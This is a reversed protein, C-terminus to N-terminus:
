RFRFLNIFGIKQRWSDAVAFWYVIILIYPFRLWNGYFSQLELGIRQLTISSKVSMWVHSKMTSIMLKLHLQRFIKSIFKWKFNARWKKMSKEFCLGIRPSVLPDMLWLTMPWHGNLEFWLPLRHYSWRRDVEETELQDIRSVANMSSCILM